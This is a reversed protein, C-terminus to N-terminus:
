FPVDEIAFQINGVQIWGSDYIQKKVLDINYGRGKFRAPIIITALLEWFINEPVEIESVASSLPENKHKRMLVIIFKENSKKSM